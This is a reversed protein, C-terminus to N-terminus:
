YYTAGNKSALTFIILVVVVIVITVTYFRDESDM